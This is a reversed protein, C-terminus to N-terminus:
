GGSPAAITALKETLDQLAEAAVVLPVHLGSMMLRFEEVTFDDGEELQEKILQLMPLLSFQLNTLHLGGQGERVAKKHARIIENWPNNCALDKIAQLVDEESAPTTDPLEWTSFNYGKTFISESEFAQFAHIELIELSGGPRSEIRGGVEEELKWALWPGQAVQRAAVERLVPNAVVMAPCDLLARWSASLMPPFSVGQSALPSEGKLGALALRLAQIDPNDIGIMGATNHIVTELLDQNPRPSLLLLHAAFLGFLPNFFKDQLLANMEERTIAQRGQLLAYRAIETLRLYRRLEYHPLGMGSPTMLMARDSFDQYGFPGEDPLQFYIQSRWGTVVYFPTLVTEGQEDQYGLLYYGAKLKLNVAFLGLEPLHVEKRRFDALQNGMADRLQLRDMVIRLRDASRGEDHDPVRDQRLSLLLGGDWGLGVDEPESAVLDFLASQQRRTWDEGEQVPAPNAFDIANLPVTLTKAQPEVLFLSETRGGGAQARAKYLGPALAVTLAGFGNAVVQFASDVVEIEGQRDAINVTVSAKSNSM